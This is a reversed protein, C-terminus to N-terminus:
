LTNVIFQVIAEAAEERCRSFSPWDNFDIICYSGDARVICDGGYVDLGVANALRSADAKLSDADFAYHHAPGNQHEHDFKTDGDDAPYFFRFFPTGRVGYFKVVDGPMNAQVVYDTIGRAVFRSQQLLLEERNCCYVVDDATQACADGRKLWYGSTGETPPVPIGTEAMIQTLVSRQCCRAVAEPSNIVPCSQRRLWELTEPLRGMSLIFTYPKSPPLVMNAEDFCYTELTSVAHKPLRNIVEQLILRDKEVSHPSFRPARFIICVGGGVGGRSPLPTAAHHTGQPLPTAAHHTGQPLPTAARQAKKIDSVHDIDLVDTFPFAKLRLGDAILARQFNRMRSEGREMCRQLTILARPTLGYIGASIYRPHDCADLFATITDNNDTEVYLPKEDDIYDTVGMLGDAGCNTLLRQFAKVYDSFEEESFITDVTTLIFPEGELWPSLAALSHMSSPTTRVLYRLPVRGQQQLAELHRSVQPSLDNCVVVIDTAGNDMFIRILRDILTEGGIEVLPKAVSIGEQALRSGEGAAIIAYRM